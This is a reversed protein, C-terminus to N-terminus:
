LTLRTTVGVQSLERLHHVHIVAEAVTGYMHPLLRAAADQDGQQAAKLIETVNANPTEAM